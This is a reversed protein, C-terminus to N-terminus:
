LDFDVMYAFLIQLPQRFIQTGFLENKQGYTTYARMLFTDSSNVWNPRFGALVGYQVELEHTHVCVANAVVGPQCASGDDLQEGSPTKVNGRIRNRPLVLARVIPGIFGINRSRFLFLGEWRVSWGGNMVTAMDWDYTVDPRNEHHFSFQSVGMFNYAPWLFGWRLEEFAWRKVEQDSYHDKVSRASRTLDSFTPTQDTALAPVAPDVGLHPQGARDKGTQADPNFQLTHWENHYGISAGATMLFFRADVNASVEAFPIAVTGMIQTRVESMDKEVTYRHDYIARFGPGILPMLTLRPGPLQPQLFDDAPPHAAAPREFSLLGTLLAIGALAKGIRM